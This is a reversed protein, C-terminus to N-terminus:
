VDEAYAHHITDIMVWLMEIKFALADFARRQLDITTCHAQVLRLGQESDRPAQTLRSKFYDLAWFGYTTLPEFYFVVQRRAVRRLEGLGRALDRWHHITLVALAVDFTGDAFPLAEGVGNVVLSTRDVSRQGLM